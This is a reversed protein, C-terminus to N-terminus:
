NNADKLIEDIVDFIKSFESFDFNNFGEVNRKINSVFESKSLAYNNEDDDEISYVKKDDNGDIILLPHYGAKTSNNVVYRCMMNKTKKYIGKNSFEQALFIRRGESNETMLEENKLYHEISILDSEKRHSPIPICFKYVRNKGKEFSSESIIYKSNDRDFMCIKINQDDGVQLYNYIKELESDGKREASEIDFYEIRNKIEQYGELKDLAIKLYEVDTKGETYIIIKNEFQKLRQNEEILMQNKKIVSNTELSFIDYARSMEEFGNIDNLLEGNPMNVIDINEKFENKLGSLVFPSHTTIIFQIKPFLKILKPLSRYCYDIHLGIDIEDIIVCGKINQLEFNEHTLDWEKLISAAIGFLFTEGTSLQSIDNCKFNNGTIRISKNKRGLSTINLSEGKIVNLVNAIHQQIKTTQIFNFPKNKIEDPIPPEIIVSELNPIIVTNKELYVDNIWNNINELIDIKIFNSKSKGVLNESDYTIRNYNEANYWLPKYYRDSPFYLLIEKEYESATLDNCIIKKSYNTKQFEEKNTLDKLNINGKTIDEDPTNSMVDIYECSKSNCDLCIHVKAYNKNMGIYNVSGVKYYNNDLVEKIGGPYLKRKIEVFSDIINSILLTKGTGNKGVIITPISNENLDRRFTYKFNNICGYNCIEIDKIYM